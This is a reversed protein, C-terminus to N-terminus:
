SGNGESSPAEVKAAALTEFPGVREGVLPYFYWGDQEHVIGGIGRWTYWGAENM